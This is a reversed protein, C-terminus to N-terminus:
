FTCSPQLILSPFAQICLRLITKGALPDGSFEDTIDQAYFCKATYNLNNWRLPFRSHLNSNWQKHIYELNGSCHNVKLCPQLLTLSMETGLMRKLLPLFVTCSFTHTHTYIHTHTHTHIYTHIHIHAHTYVAAFIITKRYNIDTNSDMTKKSKYISHLM